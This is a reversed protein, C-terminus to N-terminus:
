CMNGVAFNLSKCLNCKWTALIYFLLVWCVNFLMCMKFQVQPVSVSQKFSIRINLHLKDGMVINHLVNLTSSHNKKFLMNKIIVSPCYYHLPITIRSCLVGTKTNIRLRRRPMHNGSNTERWGPEVTSNVRERLETHSMTNQSQVHPPRVSSPKNLWQSGGCWGCSLGSCGCTIRFVYVGDPAIRSGRLLPRHDLPNPTQLVYVTKMRDFSVTTTAGNVKISYTKEGRHPISYQGVFPNPPAKGYFTVRLM